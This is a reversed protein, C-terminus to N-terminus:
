RVLYAILVSTDPTGLAPLYAATDLSEGSLVPVGPKFEFNERRGSSDGLFDERGGRDGLAIRSFGGKTIIRVEVMHDLGLVSVLYLTEGAGVTVCPKQGPDFSNVTCIFRVLSVDKNPFWDRIDAADADNTALMDLISTQPKVPTAVNEVVTVAPDSGGCGSM